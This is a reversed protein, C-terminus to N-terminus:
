SIDRGTKLVWLDSNCNAIPLKSFKFQLPTFRQRMPHCSDMSSANAPTDDFASRGTGHVIIGPQDGVTLRPAHHRTHIIPEELKFLTENIEGDIIM